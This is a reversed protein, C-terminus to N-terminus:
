RAVEFRPGIHDVMGQLDGVMGRPAQGEHLERGVEKLQVRRVRPEVIVVAFERGVVVREGAIGLEELELM